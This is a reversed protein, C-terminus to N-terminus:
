LLYAGLDAQAFFGSYKGMLPLFYWRFMGVPELVTIGDFNTSATFSVGAAFIDAFHYNFGISAGAAFNERSNMNWEPAISLSMRKVTDPNTEQQAFLTFPLSSLLLLMLVINKM